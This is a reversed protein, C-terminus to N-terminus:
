TGRRSLGYTGELTQSLRGGSRIDGIAVRLIDEGEPGRRQEVTTGPPANSVIVTIRAPAAQTQTADKNSVVEGRSNPLLYQRGNAANYVEPQGNENVRYMKSADVPGGYQRGGALGVTSLGQSLAMTSSIGAMAPAANAGFSALSALAAAPAWAAALVGAQAIGFATSAAAASKGIVLNKVYQIGMQVLSDVGERIIAAGLARIAEEGRTAGSALGILTDTATQGLHNLSDILLANWSSQRRFNEEQLARMNEHHATETQTKLDLYRQDELLKAENLRKLNAIQEEFGMQAGAIPDMQGLLQKDAQAQSVKAIAAAMAEVQAVQEPTAFQNLSAKAKVVALAEGQLGTEYLAQAMQDLVKLNDEQAKKVENADRKQASAGATAAKRAAEAKKQAADVAAAEEQIAKIREPSLNSQEKLYRTAQKVASNGDEISARRERMKKLFDDSVSDDFAAKMERGAAAAGRASAALRDNEDSLAAIRRATDNAAKQAEVWAAAQAKYASVTEASWNNLVAYRDVLAAIAKELEVGSVSTDAAIGKIERDIESRMQAVARAGRATSPELAGTFDSLAAIATRTQERLVDGYDALAKSRQLEGLERFKAIQEDLAGSFTTIASRARGVNTGFLLYGAAASAALAVLGAPGGMLAVLGRSAGAAASKAATLQAQAASEARLAATARASTAVLGNKANSAAIEAQAAALASQALKVNELAQSRAAAAALGSAVAAGATQAIYKALAGAGLTMLGKVIADINEGAGILAASLLGTAGSANNAEGVYVSLNNSLNRFADKLTTAMGAAADKNKELSGLLAGAMQQASIEGAVGMARIEKTAKGTSDALDQVITPIAAVLTEWGDAEIRGKNLAKTFASIASNARDTSTANKVFSYSLSDTIDLTQETSYGLSRVSDATLIFVEQAEALSRYTNNATVLLRAQVAEYEATSSTAMAIREAMEGYSEAMEILGRIGQVGLMAGMVKVLGGLASKAGVSEQGMGKVAQATKTMQFQTDNAAQDTRKFQRGLDDLSKEGAIGGSVLAATDAEVTYYIAGVSEAM